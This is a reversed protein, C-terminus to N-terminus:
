IQALENMSKSVKIVTHHLSECIKFRKEDNPAVKIGSTSNPAESNLSPTVEWIKYM